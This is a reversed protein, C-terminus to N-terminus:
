EVAMELLATRYPAYELVKTKGGAHAGYEVWTAAPDTNESRYILRARQLKRVNFKNVYKPPTTQSTEAENYSIQRMLFIAKARRNLEKAKSRLEADMKPSTNILKRFAAKNIVVRSAM